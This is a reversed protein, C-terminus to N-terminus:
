AIIPAKKIVTFKNIGGVVLLKTGKNTDIRFFVEEVEKLLGEFTPKVIKM